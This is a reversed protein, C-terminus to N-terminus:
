LTIQEGRLVRQRLDAKEKASLQSYSTKHDTGERGLAGPSTLQNKQLKNIVEQEKQQALSKHNVRLYADLLSLGKSERLEWVQQPIEEVKLNPFEEFLEKGENNLKEEMAKQQRIERAFQIDPHEELMENFKSKDIGLEAYRQEEAEREAHELYELMEAHSSYGTLRAIRELNTEYESLKGQVKDYNLGKQIYEPAEEYSIQREEKNYKVTHFGQPLPTEVTDPMELQGPTEVVESAETEQTQNGEFSQYEESM